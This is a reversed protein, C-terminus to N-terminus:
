QAGDFGEPSPRETASPPAFGRSSSARRRSWAFSTTERSTRISASHGSRGGPVAPCLRSTWIERSRFANSGSAGQHRPATAVDELDLRLLDVHVPELTQELLAPALVCCAVRGLASAVSSRASASQRPARARRGRTRPTRVSPSRAAPPAAARRSRPASRPRARARGARCGRERARLASPSADAARAAGRRLEHEGEVARPPLGLRQAHVGIRPPPEDLLEPDLRALLKSLELLRDEALIRREVQRPRGRSPPAPARRHAPAPARPRPRRPRRSAPAPRFPFRM